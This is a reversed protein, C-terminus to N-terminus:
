RIVTIPGSEEILRGNNQRARIYFTYVDGPIARGKYTGDWAVNPDDSEFVLEGYRNYIQLNFTNISEPYLIVAKFRPNNGRVVLANPVLIESNQEVCSVNSRHSLELFQGDCDLTTLAHIAYCFITNGTAPGELQDVFENASSDVEAVFTSQNNVIREIEYGELTHGDHVIPTWQLLNQRDPRLESRLVINSMIPTRVITGCEDRTEIQYFYTRSSTMLGDDTFSDSEPYTTPNEFEFIVEEINTQSEGRLLRFYVLDALAYISWDVQISQEGVVNVQELCLYRVPEIVQVNNICAENSRSINNPRGTEIVEVTFCYDRDRELEEFIYQTEDGVVSDILVEPGGDISLYIYWYEYGNEWFNYDNWDLTAERTCEDYDVELFVTNHNINFGGRTECSDMALVYYFEIKSNPSAGTDLYTTDGFLTDIPVTGSGDVRYIIHAVTQPSVSPLWRLRVADGEVTVYNLRVQAPPRNDLTDSPMSEGDPCDFRSVLYYFRLPATINHVYFPESPDTVTHIVSYPGDLSTAHYIDMGLFPGCPSELIQWFLTDGKVCNLVPPAVQGQVDSHLSWLTIIAIFFNRLM